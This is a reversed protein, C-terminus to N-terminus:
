CSIHTLSDRFCKVRQIESLCSHCRSEPSLVPFWHQWENNKRSLCLLPFNYCSLESQWLFPSQWWSYSYNDMKDLIRVRVWYEYHWHALVHGLSICYVMITSTCTQSNSEPVEKKKFHNINELVEHKNNLIRISFPTLYWEANDQVEMKTVKFETMNKHKLYM